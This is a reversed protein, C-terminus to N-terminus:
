RGTERRGTDRQGVRLTHGGKDRWQTETEGETDRWREMMDRQRERVCEGEPGAWRREM